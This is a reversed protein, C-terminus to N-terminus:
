TQKLAAEYAYLLNPFNKDWDARKEALQRAARSMESLQQPQDVAELIIRALDEEDGDKFWWGHIGPEVWERNGPIDSVIVPRGSALAELLSISSGDTRSASVYLDSMKYFNPLDTHTVHGPFIVRDLVGGRTFIQRLYSAQSGNGLLILKLGEFQHAAKVFARALIEVGYIPEWNRTSLLTFQNRGKSPIKGPTFSKLDIGWPFTVIKDDPMGLEVAQKRVTDCDGILIASRQLTFKTAFRWFRNRYADHLLDYGWSVSVLPKFGLLAVLFASRQIPGAQILNPKIRKIVRRLDFLLNPGDLISITRTGGVWNVQHIEVPLPRDELQERRRELRLYYVEYETGALASLFRLDHNTYDRSFYIVRTV